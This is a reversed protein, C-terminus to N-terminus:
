LLGDENEVPEPTTAARVKEAKAPKDQPLSKDKFTTQPFIKLLDDKFAKIYLDPHKETAKNKNPTVFIKIKQEVGLDDTFRLSGQLYRDGSPYTEKWLSGILSTKESFKETKTNESM